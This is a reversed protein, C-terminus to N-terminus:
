SGIREGSSRVPIKGFMGVEFLPSDSLRITGAFEPVLIIGTYTGILFGLSRASGEWILSPGVELGFPLRTVPLLHGEIGAHLKLRDATRCHDIALVVGLTSNQKEWIVSIEAGVTLGGESGFTHAIKFGPNVWVRRVQAQGCHILVATLVILIFTKFFCSLQSFEKQTGCIISFSGSPSSDVQPARKV